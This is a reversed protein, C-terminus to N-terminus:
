AESETDAALALLADRHRLLDALREHSPTATGITAMARDLRARSRPDIAGVAGAVAIM